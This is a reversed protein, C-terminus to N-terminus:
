VSFEVTVSLGKGDLGSSRSLRGGLQQAFARLLEAGLGEAAHPDSGVGDDSITLAYRDEAARRVCVVIRGPGDPFAHKCANSLAEGIFLGAPSAVSFPWHLEPCIVELDIDSRFVLARSLNGIWARIAIQDPQDAQYSVQHVEALTRLRAVASELGAAGDDVPNRRAQLLLMSAALQLSNKARHDIEKILLAQTKALARLRVVEARCRAQEAHTADPSTPRRIGPTGSRDDHLQM